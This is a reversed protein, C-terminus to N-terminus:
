AAKSSKHKGFKISLVPISMLGIFILVAMISYYFTQRRNYAKLNDSLVVTEIEQLLTKIKVSKDVILPGSKKGQVSINLDKPVSGFTEKFAREGAEEVSLNETFVFRVRDSSTKFKSKDWILFKVQFPMMPEDDSYSPSMNNEFELSRKQIGESM